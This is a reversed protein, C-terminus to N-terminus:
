LKKFYRAIPFPQFGASEYARRAPAHGLDGGTDAMVTTMGVAKFWALAHAMLATAIGRRQSEPDVALMYIEGLRETPHLKLAVFGLPQGGDSAVWVPVNLDACADEVAKQQTVRWDPHHARYVEPDMVREISAFVPIWARLAIRVIAERQADNYRTIHM